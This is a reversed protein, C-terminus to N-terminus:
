LLFFFQIRVEEKHTIRYYIKDQISDFTTIKDSLLVLLDGQLQKHLLDQRLSFLHTSGAPSLPVILSSYNHSFFRFNNLM